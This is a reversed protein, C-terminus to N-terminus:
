AAVAGLQAALDVLSVAELDPRAFYGPYEADTRNLWATALGARKAGHIDWPHVAVLMADAAETGTEALALDYAASAPKWRGADQVSLLRTFCDGIGARDFLDRAVTTAGNTLTVLEIGLERLLRVGEVVDPHVPLQGLRDLVQGAAGDLAEPGGEGVTDKLLSRLTQRALDAFDPNDGDVTLAFGDRLIMAFWTAALPPAGVQGFADDLPSLDSLTGNVDFVVVRPATM